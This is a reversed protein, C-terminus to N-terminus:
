PTSGGVEQGAGRRDQRSSKHQGTDRQGDQGAGAAFGTRDDLIQRDRRWDFFGGLGAHRNLLNCYKLEGGGVPQAPAFAGHNGM